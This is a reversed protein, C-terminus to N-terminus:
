QTGKPKTSENQLLTQLRATLKRSERKGSIVMSLHGPTVGLAAARRNLDLRRTRPNRYRPVQMRYQRRTKGTVKM